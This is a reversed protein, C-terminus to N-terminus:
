MIVYGFLNRIKNSMVGFGHQERCARVLPLVVSHMKVQVSIYRFGPQMWGDCFWFKYKQRVANVTVPLKKHLQECLCASFFQYKKDCCRGTDQTEEGKFRESLGVRFHHSGRVNAPSKAAGDITGATYWQLTVHSIKNQYMM